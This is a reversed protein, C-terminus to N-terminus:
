KFLKVSHVVGNAPLPLDLCLSLFLPRQGHAKAPVPVCNIEHFASLVQSSFAPAEFHPTEAPSPPGPPVWM